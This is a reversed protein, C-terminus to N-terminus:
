FGRMLHLRGLNWSFFISVIIWWLCRTILLSSIVTHSTPPSPSSLPHCQPYTSGCFPLKGKGTKGSMPQLHSLTNNGCRQKNNCTWSSPWTLLEAQWIWIKLLTTLSCGSILVKGKVICICYSPKSGRGTRDTRSRGPNWHEESRTPDFCLDKKNWCVSSSHVVLSQEREKPSWHSTTVITISQFCCVQTWIGVCDHLKSHWRCEALRVLRLPNDHLNFPLFTGHLSGSSIPFTPNM